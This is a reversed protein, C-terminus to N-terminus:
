SHLLAVAFPLARKIKTGQPGTLAVVRVSRGEASNVCSPQTGCRAPSCPPEAMCTCSDSISRIPLVGSTLSRFTVLCRPAPGPWPDPAPLWRLWPDPAPLWGPRPDAAGATRALTSYMLGPPDTLSLIASRITSAASADPSSLGPPVITSGVDPFVPTPSAM